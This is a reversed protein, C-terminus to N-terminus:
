IDVSRGPVACTPSMRPIGVSQFIHQLNNGVSFRSDHVWQRITGALLQLKAGAMDDGRHRHAGLVIADDWCFLMTAM